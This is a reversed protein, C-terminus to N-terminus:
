RYSAHHKKRDHGVRPVAKSGAVEDDTEADAAILGAKHDQEDDAAAELSITPLSGADIFTASSTCNSSSSVSGTVSCAMM